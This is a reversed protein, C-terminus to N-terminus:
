LPSIGSALASAHNFGSGSQLSQAGANSTPANNQPSRMNQAPPVTVTQTQTLIIQRCEVSMLLANELKQDTHQHLRSMLMNSYARKGTFVDFLQRSAQLRLFGAYVDQVYNPNGGSTLSSNSYGVLIKISAPRKFSHDTIAAGQEVPLETIVLEDEGDEEITVDAVFEGISRARFLAPSLLNIALAQVASLGLPIFSM